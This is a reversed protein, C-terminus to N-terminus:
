MHLKRKVAETVDKFCLIVTIILNLISIAISIKGLISLEIIKELVFVLPLFSLILIILQYIAYKIYKKYSVLTLILMTINAVMLVIPVAISMSWGISGLRSDIYVLIASVAIVQLLVHGAINTNRKISFILIAWIYIIGCNTIAAWPIDPTTLRNILVLVLALIISSAIFINLLKETKKSNLKEPYIM